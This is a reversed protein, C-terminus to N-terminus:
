RNTPPDYDNELWFLDTVRVLDGELYITKLRYRLDILTEHIFIYTHIKDQPVIM